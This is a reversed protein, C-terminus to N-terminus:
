SFFYILFVHSNYSFLLFIHIWIFCYTVSLNLLLLRNWLYSFYEFSNFPIFIIIGDIKSVVKKMKIANTELFFYYFSKRRVKKKGFLFFFFVCFIEFNINPMDMFYRCFIRCTRIMGNIIRYFSHFLIKFLLMLLENFNNIM